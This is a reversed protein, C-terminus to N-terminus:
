TQRNENNAKRFQVGKFLANPTCKFIAVLIGFDGVGFTKVNGKLLESMKVAYTNNAYGLM